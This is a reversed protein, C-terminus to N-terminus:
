VLHALRMGQQLLGIIQDAGFDDIFPTLLQPSDLVDNQRRVM